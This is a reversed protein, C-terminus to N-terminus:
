RVCCTNFIIFDAENKNDTPAYGMIELMGRLRESDHANMQCGYSEVIYRKGAGYQERIRKATENAHQIAEDSIHLRTSNTM